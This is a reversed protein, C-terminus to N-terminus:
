GIFREADEPTLQVRVEARMAGRGIRCLDDNFDGLSADLPLVDIGACQARDTLTVTAQRGAADNERAIYLRHLNAPLQLAALHAASLAAIMPMTPMIQRLSLMTEIGEGAIM